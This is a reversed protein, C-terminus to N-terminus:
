SFWWADEQLLAPPLPQIAMLQDDQSQCERLLRLRASEIKKRRHEAIGPRDLPLFRPWDPDVMHGVYHGFNNELLSITREDLFYDELQATPTHLFRNTLWYKRGNVTIRQPGM